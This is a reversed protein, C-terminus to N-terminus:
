KYKLPFYYQGKKITEKGYEVAHVPCIHYCGLCSCCRSNWVPHGNKMEINKIPCASACKGCSICSNSYQWKSPFIGWKKFLPYIMKSKVWRFKGRTVDITKRRQLIGTAIEMIRAPCNNLKDNEVKKPDVDFGPLLVYNNPMIISWISETEAGIKSMEKIFMEPALAVEDGCTMVVDIQLQYYKIKEWFHEPLEKIFSFVIPPVGWSYVPFVFVLCEEEEIPFPEKCFDVINYLSTSLIGALTKAVYKSNGTGSFYLVM